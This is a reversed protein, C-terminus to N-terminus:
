EGVYLRLSSTWQRLVDSGLPTGGTERPVTFVYLAEDSQAHLRITTNNEMRVSRLTALPQGTTSTFAYDGKGMLSIARAPYISTVTLTDYNETRYTLTAIRGLGEEFAVDYCHGEVFILAKGFVPCLVPAPFARAIQGMDEESTIHVAASLAPLLPQDVPVADDVAASDEQPQGMVVAVYFLALLLLSLLTLMVGRLIRRFLPTNEAM